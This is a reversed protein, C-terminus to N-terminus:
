QDVLGGVRVYRRRDVLAECRPTRGREYSGLCLLTSVRSWQLCACACSLPARSLEDEVVEAYPVDGGGGGERVCRLPMESARM